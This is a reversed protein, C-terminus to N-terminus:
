NVRIYDSLIQVAEAQLAVWDVPRAPLPQAAAPAAAMTLAILLLLRRMTPIMEPPNPRIRSSLGTSRRRTPATPATTPLHPPPSSPIRPPPALSSIAPLPQLRPTVGVVERQGGARVFLDPRGCPRPRGTTMM